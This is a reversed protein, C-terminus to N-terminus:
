AGLYRGPRHNLVLVASLLVAGLASLLVIMPPVVTLALLIVAVDLVMQVYGASWGLREQLTLALVNFGGLSARHRFLILLGIGALLNGMAIAYVEPLTGPEIPHLDAAVSALGVAIASRLTFRWGKARLALLFFPVNVAFFMVGFPIDTAYSILLGLGATGGTVADVSRLMALGLSAVVAGVVLGFTDEFWSHPVPSAGPPTGPGYPATEVREPDPEADPPTTM